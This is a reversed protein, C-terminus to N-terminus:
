RRMLENLAAVRATLPTDPFMSRLYTLAQSATGPNIEALAETMARALNAESRGTMFAPALPVDGYATPEDVRLTQRLSMPGPSVHGPTQARM